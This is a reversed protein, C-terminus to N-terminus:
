AKQRYYYGTAERPEVAHESMLETLSVDDIEPRGFGKSRTTLEVDVVTFDRAHEELAGKLTQLHKTTTSSYGAWGVNSNDTAYGDGFLVYGVGPSTAAYVAWGYGVVVRVGDVERIEMRNASGTGGTVFRKALDANSLTM